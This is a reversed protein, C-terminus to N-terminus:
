ELRPRATRRSQASVVDASHCEALSRFSAPYSLCIRGTSVAREGGRDLKDFVDSELELATLPAVIPKSQFWTTYRGSSLFRKACRVSVKSDLCTPHGGIPCQARERRIVM